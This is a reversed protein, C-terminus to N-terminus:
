ELCHVSVAIQAVARDLKPYVAGLRVRRRDTRITDPGQASLCDPYGRSHDVGTADTWDDGVVAYEDSRGAPRSDAEFLIRRNEQSSWVVTGTLWKPTVTADPWLWAAGIGVALGLSVLLSSRRHRRMWAVFSQARPTQSM